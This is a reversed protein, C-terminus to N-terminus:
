ELEGRERMIKIFEVKKDVAWTMSEIMSNHKPRKQTKKWEEFKRVFDADDIKMLVEGCERM